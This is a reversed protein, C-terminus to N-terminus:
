AARYKELQNIETAVYKCVDLLMPKEIRAAFGEPPEGNFDCGSYLVIPAHVHIKRMLKLLKKGNMVPMEYDTVILAIESKHQVAYFLAESPREFTVVDYKDSVTVARNQFMEVVAPDDDIFLIKQRM